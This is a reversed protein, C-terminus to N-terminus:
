PRSRGGRSERDVVFYMIGFIILWGFCWILLVIRFDHRALELETM